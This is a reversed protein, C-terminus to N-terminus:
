PKGFTWGILVEGCTSWISVSGNPTARSSSLLVPLRTLWGGGWIVLSSYVFALFCVGKIKVWNCCKQSVAKQYPNPTIRGAWFRRSAYVVLVGMPRLLVWLRLALFWEEVLGRERVERKM